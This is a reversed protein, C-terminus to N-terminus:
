QEQQRLLPGSAVLDPNVEMEGFRMVLLEVGLAAEALGREAMQMIDAEEPGLQRETVCDPCGLVIDIQDSGTAGADAVICAGIQAQSATDRGDSAEDLATDRDGEPDILGPEVVIAVHQLLQAEDLMQM